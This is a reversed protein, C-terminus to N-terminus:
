YFGGCEDWGRLCLCVGFALGFVSVTAYGRFHLPIAVGSGLNREGREV